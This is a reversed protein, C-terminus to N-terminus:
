QGGKGRARFFRQVSPARSIGTATRGKQRAKQPKGGKQPAGSKDESRGGKAGPASALRYLKPTDATDTCASRGATPFFALPDCPTRDRLFTRVGCPLGSPSVRSPAIGPFHWLFCVALPGKRKPLPAPLPSFTPYSGVAPAALNGPVAFGPRLLALYPPAQPHGARHRRTPRM